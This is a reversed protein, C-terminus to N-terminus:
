KRMILEVNKFLIGNNGGLPIVVLKVSQLSSDIYYDTRLPNELCRILVNLYTDRDVEYSHPWPQNIGDKTFENNMKQALEDATLVEGKEFDYNFSTVWRCGM